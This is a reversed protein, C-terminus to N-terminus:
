KTIAKRYNIVMDEYSTYNGFHCEGNPDPIPIRFKYDCIDWSDLGVGKKFYSGDSIEYEINKLKKRIKSNSYRKASKRWKSGYGETVFAKRRSKGM